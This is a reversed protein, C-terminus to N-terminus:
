SVFAVYIISILTVNMKVHIKVHICPGGDVTTRVYSALSESWWLCSLTIPKVEGAKAM